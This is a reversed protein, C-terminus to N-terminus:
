APFPESSHNAISKNQQDGDKSDVSHIEEKNVLIIVVLFDVLLLRRVHNGRYGYANKPSVRLTDKSQPNESFGMADILLM